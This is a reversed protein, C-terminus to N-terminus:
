NVDVKVESRLNVGVEVKIDSCIALYHLIKQAFLSLPTIRKPSKQVFDFGLPFSSV